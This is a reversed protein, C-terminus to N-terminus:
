EEPVSFVHFGSGVTHTRGAFAVEAEAGFPVTVQLVLKGYRKVWRVAVDGRVTDVVGQASLLGEPFFPEIRIRGYGPTLPRIGCLYAWLWYDVAGYMPHNHSNMSPDKMLEFREWVTTAEQQIMYGFSPYTERTLLRWADEGYGYRALMDMLYRTCLNGTTFRYDRRVLDDRMLRAAAARGEEPLLDLWLAFAQCAQSGTAVRGTGADYWKELMARRIREALDSYRARKEPLGLWGAFRSLLRCNLFSYGTSMFVGPTVASVAGPGGNENPVCAYLPAAWDGYYSYDVIYDRSHSLLCSEWAEYSAFASRLVDMNGLHLASEYGALLFSSCVPDAPISGFLYPATCAIGGDEAQLDRLDRILKPFIRGVDFNYPTEEFRVTADNMWGMREDRQPCDTLISHMNARETAVCNEHIKTVLASGCRFSGRTDLDTRLEVARVGRAADYGAGLGSLRAYRFGHYTFEAQWERLDSGDGAAIYVDEARASRLTDRFLRGDETLEESFAVRVEQGPRLGEPLRVRAVGAMNQGFDMVVADPGDAWAALPARLGRERVPELAMPTMEGGPGEIRRAPVFDGQFGPLDWGPRAERADYEAGDFVSAFTWAGWGAQWSEDTCVWVEEGDAYRLRLMATLGVPGSFRPTRKMLREVGPNNRWGPAVIAALCNEGEAFLGEIGPFMVYQCQRAYDTFAPDLKADGLPAGNVFLQHYGVGCAYLCADKLGAQVRLDRRFCVPREGAERAAGIWGARWRAAALYFYDRYIESEAGSDDRIRLEFDIREGEPLPKGAYRLEQAEGPLWGSEWLADGAARATLRCASQRADAADSLASWSFMPTGGVVFHTRIGDKLRGYDMWVDRIQFM